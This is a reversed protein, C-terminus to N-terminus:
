GSITATVAGIAFNVTAGPAVPGTVAATADGWKFTGATVASWIGIWLNGAEAPMGTFNQNVVASTEVGGSASGFQIPQRAYSGGSIESAGTTVPDASHLSLYYTTTPVLVAAVAANQSAAPMEAM